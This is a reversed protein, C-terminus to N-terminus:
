ADVSWFTARCFFCRFTRLFFFYFTLWCPTRAILLGAVHQATNALIYGTPWSFPNLAKLDMKFMVHGIKARMCSLCQCILHGSLHNTNQLLRASPSASFVLNTWGLFYSAIPTINSSDEAAEHSPISLWVRQLLSTCHYFSLAFVLQLLSIRILYWSAFAIHPTFFCFLNAVAITTDSKPSSWFTVLDQSVKKIIDRNQTHPQVLSQNIEETLIIQPESLSM